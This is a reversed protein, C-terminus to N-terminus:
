SVVPSLPPAHRRTTSSRLWRISLGSVISAILLGVAGVLAHLSMTREIRITPYQVVEFIAAAKGAGGQGASQSSAAPAPSEQGIGNPMDRLEAALRMKLDGVLWGLVQRSLLPDDLTVSISVRKAGSLHAEVSDRLRQAAYLAPFKWGHWADGGLRRELGHAEIEREFFASSHLVILALYPLQTVREQYTTGGDRPLSQQDFRLFAIAQFRHYSVAVSGPKGTAVLALVTALLTVLGAFRLWEGRVECDGISHNERFDASAAGVSAVTAEVAGARARRGPILRLQARKLSSGTRYNRRVRM